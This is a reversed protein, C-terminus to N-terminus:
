RRMGGRDKRMQRTNITKASTAPCSVPGGIMAVGIVRERDVTEHTSLICCRIPVSTDRLVRVDIGGDVREVLLAAGAVGLEVRAVPVGVLELRV